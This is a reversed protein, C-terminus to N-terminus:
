VAVARRAAPALGEPSSDVELKFAAVLSKLGGALVEMEAASAAANVVFASSKRTEEGLRGITAQVEDVGLSQESSGRSLVAILETTRQISSVVDSMRSGAEDVLSTGAAVKNVSDAILDKIEKAAQASRLAM